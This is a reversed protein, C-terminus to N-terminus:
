RIMRVDVGLKSELKKWARDATLVSAGLRRALALCARDGLSLGLPKTIPQLGAAEAAFGEDFAVVQVQTSRASRVATALDVPIVLLRGIVESFNVASMAATELVPEVVHHGPERHLLALLASSDLVHDIPM